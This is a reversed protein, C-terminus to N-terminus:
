WFFAINILDKLKTRDRVVFHYPKNNTTTPHQCGFCKVAICFHTVEWPWLLEELLSFDYKTLFKDIDAIVVM